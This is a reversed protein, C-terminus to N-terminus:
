QENSNAEKKLALHKENTHNIPLYWFTFLKTLLLSSVIALVSGVLLTVAFSKMGTTGLFYLVVSAIAGLSCIDVVEFLSQKFGLKMALPIKRGLSYEKKIKEFVVIHCLITLMFGVVIGIVGGLTLVFFTSPFTQLLFMYLVANVLSSLFAMLGLDRYRIIMFLNVLVFSILLAIKITLNVNKGYMASVVSNEKIEFSTNVGGMYIQLAYANYEVETSLSSNALFTQGTTIEKKVTLTGIQASDSDEEQSNYFYVTNGNDKVYKTLERYLKTGADDFEILVGYEYKSSDSSSQQYSFSCKKIHDASIDYQTTETTAKGRIVLSIRDELAELIESSNDDNVVTVRLMNGNEQEVLHYSYGFMNLANEVYKATNKMESSTLTEVEENTPSCEFVVTRGEGIDYGLPIANVFGAFKDTSGFPMNFSFLSLFIGIAVLISVIIFNSISLRKAM